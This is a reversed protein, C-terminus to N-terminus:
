RNGGTKGNRERTRRSNSKPEYNMPDDKWSKKKRPNPPTSNQKWTTNPSTKWASKNSFSWGQSVLREAQENSVRKVESGRSVCKM